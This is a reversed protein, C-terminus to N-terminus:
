FFSVQACSLFRLISKVFVLYYVIVKLYIYLDPFKLIFIHLRRKAWFKFFEARISEFEKTWIKKPLAVGKYKWESIEQGNSRYFNRMWNNMSMGLHFCVLNLTHLSSVFTNLIFPNAFDLSDKSSFIKRQEKASKLQILKFILQFTSWFKTLCLDCLAM